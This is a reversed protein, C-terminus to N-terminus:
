GQHAEMEVERRKASLVSHEPGTAAQDPSTLVSLIVRDLGSITVCVTIISLSGSSLVVCDEIHGSLTLRADPPAGYKRLCELATWVRTAAVDADDGILRSLVQALGCGEETLLARWLEAARRNVSEIDCALPSGGAVAMTVDGCHSASVFREGIVEPRGDPRRVVIVDQGIASLIASKSRENRERGSTRELVISVPSVGMRHTM